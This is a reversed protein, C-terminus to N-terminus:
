RSILCDVTVSSIVNSDTLDDPMSSIIGKNEVNLVVIAATAAKMDKSQMLGLETESVAADGYVDWAPLYRIDALIEYCASMGSLDSTPYDILQWEEDMFMIITGSSDSDDPKVVVCGPSYLAALQELDGSVGSFAEAVNQTWIVAHNVDVSKRGTLHAHVFMQVCIAGALSLFLVSIIIEMLFLSTRTNSVRNM